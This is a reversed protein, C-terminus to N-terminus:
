KKSTKHANYKELQERFQKLREEIEKNSKDCRICLETNADVKTRNCKRCYYDM